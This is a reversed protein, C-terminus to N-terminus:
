IKPDFISFKSDNDTISVTIGGAAVTGCPRAATLTINFTETLELIQDDLILTSIDTCFTDGNNSGAPILFILPQASFDENSVAIFINSGM